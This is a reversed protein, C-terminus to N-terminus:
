CTRGATAFPRPRASSIPELRQGNVIVPGRCDRGWYSMTAEEVPDYPIPVMTGPYSGGSCGPGLCCEGGVCRWCSNTCYSDRPSEDSVNQHVHRECSDKGEIMVYTDCWGSACGGNETCPTGDTCLRQSYDPDKDGGEFGSPDPPTDAVNGSDGDHNPEDPASEAYDYKTFTHRLCWHHGMEHAWRMGTVVPGSAMHCWIGFMTDSEGNKVPDAVNSCCTQHSGTVMLSIANPYAEAVTRRWHKRRQRNLWDCEGLGLPGCILPADGCDTALDDCVRRQRCTGPGSCDADSECVTLLDDCYTLEIKCNPIYEYSANNQSNIPMVTPRFSIGTARWEENMIGVAMVAQDVLSHENNYDCWNECYPWIYLDFTEGATAPPAAATVALLALCFRSLLLDFM